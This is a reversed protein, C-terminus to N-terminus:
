SCYLTLGLGGPNLGALPSTYINKYVEYGSGTVPSGQQESIVVSPSISIIGNNILQAGSDVKLTDTSPTNITVSTGATISITTGPFIHIQGFSFVSWLVFLGTNFCSKLMTVFIFLFLSLFFRM